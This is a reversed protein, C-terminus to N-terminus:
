AEKYGAIIQRGQAEIGAAKLNTKVAEKTDGPADVAQVVSRLVLGRIRAKNGAWLGALGILGEIGLRILGNAPQPVLAGAPSDMVAGAGAASQATVEAAHDIRDFAADSCGSGACLMIVTIGIIVIALLAGVLSFAKM